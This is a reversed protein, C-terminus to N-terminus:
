ESNVEICSKGEKGKKKARVSASFRFLFLVFHPSISVLSATNGSKNREREEVCSYQLNGRISSLAECSLDVRRMSIHSLFTHIRPRFYISALITRAHRSQKISLPSIKVTARENRENWMENKEGPIGEIGLINGGTLAGRATFFKNSCVLNEM